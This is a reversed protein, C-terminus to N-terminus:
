SSLEKGVKGMVAIEKGTISYEIRGTSAFFEMIQKISTEKRTFKGYFRRNAVNPHVTINVDYSRELEKAIDSLLEEDFFLYGNTWGISREAAVEKLHSDGSEKNLFIKQNPKMTIEESPAINSAISVKGELLSVIAERDDTYNRVNFKTGLVNVKLEGTQVSFPLNKNHTVEFYGEGTLQVNRDNIGFGQSYSLESGANLWVMTGDPLTTKVQSGWSVETTYTEAFFMTNPQNFFQYVGYSAMVLLAIAAASRWAFQWRNIRMITRQSKNIHALFREFIKDKSENIYSEDFINSDSLWMERMKLYEKENELSANRWEQLEKLEELVKLGEPSLAKKSDNM